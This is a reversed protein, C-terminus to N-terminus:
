TQLQVMKAYLGGSKMLERHTGEEVKSGNDLVVIKDAIDWITSLRHAIVIATKGKLITRMKEQIEKETIADVSSTAEDLILIPRDALIARALAVRQKQGGSLKKGREGLLTEYSEPLELSIFEHIGALKAAAIVEEISADPTPLSINERITKSHIAVDDGQPVYSFLGRLQKLPWNKINIGGVLIEGSHIEMLRTVLRRVTTKGAGSPGVLAVISGGDIVLNLDHIAGTEPKYSGNYTFSVNKLEIGVPLTVKQEGSSSCIEPNASLLNALRTAGESAESARDFIRAFRWFSHFLRETLVNVFVLDAITLTGQYLQWVWIVLILRRALSLIRIRQRNYYIGIKLEKEGLNVIENHIKSYDELTKEEQTFTKLTEISQVSEISAHWEEEYYDHRVKRLPIRQRNSILTLWMFLTLAVGAVLTILPSFILLPILSLFTQILTPVFEWSLGEIIQQVKDVGNNVKGVLSGSNHENHWKIDLDLFKALASVKLYRYIPYLQRLIIHWDIANDLRAFVEDYIVLALILGIWVLNQAKEGFLNIVLSIVYSDLIQLGEYVILLVVFWLFTKHFAALLKWLKKAM